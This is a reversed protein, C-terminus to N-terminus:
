NAVCKLLFILVNSGASPGSTIIREKKEQRNKRNMYTKRPQKEGEVKKERAGNRGMLGEDTGTREERTTHVSTGM